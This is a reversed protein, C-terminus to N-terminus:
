LLINHSINDLEKTVKMEVMGDLTLVDIKCGMAAQLLYKPNSDSRPNHDFSATLQSYSHLM